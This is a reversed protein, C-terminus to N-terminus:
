LEPHRLCCRRRPVCASCLSGNFLTHQVCRTAPLPCHAPRLTRRATPLPGGKTAYTGGGADHFTCAWNECLTTMNQAAMHGISPYREILSVFPHKITSTCGFSCPAKWCLRM